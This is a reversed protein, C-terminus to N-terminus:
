VQEAVAAGEAQCQSVHQVQGTSHDSVDQIILYLDFGNINLKLSDVSRVLCPLIPRLQQDDCELLKNVDLSSIARYVVPTM